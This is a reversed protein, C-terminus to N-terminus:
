ARSSHPQQRSPADAADRERLSRTPGLADDVSESLEAILDDIVEPSPGRSEASPAGGRPRPAEPPDTRAVFRYIGDGDTQWEEGLQQALWHGRAQVGDEDQGEDERRPPPEGGV